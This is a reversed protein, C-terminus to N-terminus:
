DMVGAKELADKTTELATKASELVPAKQTDPDFVEVSVIDNYGIQRLAQLQETLPIAGTGPWICQPRKLTFPMAKPSDSIHAVFIEKGDAKLIDEPTSGGAYHHWTDLLIGVNDENVSRIIDLAQNFTKVSNTPVGMYELALRIGYPRAVKSLFQLTEITEKNIEEVDETPAKFTAIVELDRCDLARACYCLFECSEKLHDKQAGRNFTIGHLANVCIAQIGAEDLRQKLQALTGGHRLYAMLKEKRIEMDHFGAAKCAAIDELIGASKMSTAENYCPRM